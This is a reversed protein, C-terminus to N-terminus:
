FFSIMHYLSYIIFIPSFIFYNDTRWRFKIKKYYIYYLILAVICSIINMIYFLKKMDKYEKFPVANPYHENHPISTPDENYKGKYILKM